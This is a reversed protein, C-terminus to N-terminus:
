TAYVSHVLETLTVGIKDGETIVVEGRAVLIGNAYIEVPEDTKQDLEVVAGRGLKLLQHVRLMSKGLMVSIEVQVTFAADNTIPRLGGVTQLTPDDKLRFQETM